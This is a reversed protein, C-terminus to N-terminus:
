DLVKLQKVRVKEGNSPIAVFDMIDVEVRIVTDGFAKALKETPCVHLGHACSDYVRFNVYKDKIIKGKKYEIEMKKDGIMPSKRNKVGKFLVLKGNTAKLNYKGMFERVTMGGFETFSLDASCVKEMVELFDDETLGGIGTGLGSLLITQNTNIHHLFVGSLARFMKKKSSKKNRDVSITFFLHQTKKFEHANNIENPYKKAIQLDLGGSM